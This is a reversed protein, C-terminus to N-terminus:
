GALPLTFFFDTGKGPESEVWIIGGNAEVFEKCIVLGLGTGKENDIGISSPNDVINFLLPIKEKAIGIGSDRVQIQIFDKAYKTANIEIKGDKPTFKLANAVLNRIITEFMNRDAKAEIKRDINIFRSINKKEAKYNYIQIAEQIVEYVPISAPNFELKKRQSQAWLLMNDLLNYTNKSSENMTRIYHKLEDSGINDFNELIIETLGQISGIPSRLDHSIISFFKDKSSNAELLMIESRKRQIATWINEAFMSLIDVDFQTYDTNKNGVGFIIKVKDDEILPLSIYRILPFHGDPLGKKHQLKEYNNHVVPKREYFCDVWTGAEEIPYHYRKDPIDCHSLTKKSWMQLSITKQDDNVFHFFGINSESLRVAEELGWKMIEEISASNTLENIKLSTRLVDEVRKRYSIERLAAVQIEKNKLKLQKSEIEVPYTSGDKRIGLVEYPITVKDEINKFIVKYSEPTFLNLLKESDILEEIKYGTIFLASKNVDLIKGNEHIIIGEMTIDSLFKYREQSEKLEIEANKKDTINEKISVFNTINGSKNKIPAIIAKEFYDEGNKKKKIFEGKWVKGLLITQWLDKYTEIATKGSKLIRPNKGIAEEAAYGTVRTFTENIYEINGDVDTIVVSTPSQEVVVSLKKIDAEIKKRSSIDRSVGLIGILKNNVDRLPNAVIEALFVEGNKRKHWLESTKTDTIQGNKENEIRELYSAIHAQYDAETLIDKVELSELENQEYGLFKSASPSIYTFNGNLDLMWIVDSLNEALLHFRSESQELEQKNNNITEFTQRLEENYEILKANKYQLEQFIKSDKFEALQLKLQSNENLLDIYSPKNESM